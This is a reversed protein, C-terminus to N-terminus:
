IRPLARNLSEAAINHHRHAQAAIGEERAARRHARVPLPVDLPEAKTATAGTEPTPPGRRHLVVELGAGSRRRRM